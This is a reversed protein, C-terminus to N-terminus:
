LRADNRKDTFENLVGASAQKNDESQKRWVEPYYYDEVEVYRGSYRMGLM